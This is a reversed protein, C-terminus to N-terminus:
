ERRACSAGDVVLQEISGEVIGIARAVLESREVSTLSDPPTFYV